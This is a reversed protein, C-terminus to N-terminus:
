PNPQIQSLNPVKFNKDNNWIGKFVKGTGDLMQNCKESIINACIRPHVPIDCYSVLDVNYFDYLILVLCRWEKRNLIRQTEIANARFRTILEGENTGRLTTKTM